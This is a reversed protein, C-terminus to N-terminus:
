QIGLNSLEQELIDLIWDIARSKMGHLSKVTRTINRM